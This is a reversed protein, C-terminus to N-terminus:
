PNRSAPGNLLEYEIDYVYEFAGSGVEYGLWGGLAGGVFAGGAITWPNAGLAGLGGGVLSGGLSGGGIAGLIGGSSSGLQRAWDDPDSLPTLSQLTYDAM